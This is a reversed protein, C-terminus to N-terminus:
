AAIPRNAVPEAGLWLWATEEDGEPFYLLEMRLLPQWLKLWSELWRPGGVVAYRELESMLGLKMRLHEGSALIRPDISGLSRVRVLLGKLGSQARLANLDRAVQCVEKASIPGDIELGITDPRSTEIIKLAHRYPLDDRGQVWALALERDAPTYTRWSIGPLLVSGTRAALRVWPQDNVIAVRDLRDLRGLLPAAGKLDTTLAETDFGTLGVTEILLNIKAREQTGEVLLELCKDLDERRIHASLRIAIVGPKSTLKEIM